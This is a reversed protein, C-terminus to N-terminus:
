VNFHRMDSKEHHYWHMNFSDFDTGSLACRRQQVTFYMTILAQCTQIRVTTRLM